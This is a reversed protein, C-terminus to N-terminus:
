IPLTNYDNENYDDPVEIYADILEPAGTVDWFAKEGQISEYFKVAEDYDTFSKVQEGGFKVDYTGPIKCSGFGDGGYSIIKM